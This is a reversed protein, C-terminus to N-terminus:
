RRCLREIFARLWACCQGRQPSPPSVPPDPPDFWPPLVDPAGARRRLHRVTARDIQLHQAIEDEALGLDEFMTVTAEPWPGLDDAM